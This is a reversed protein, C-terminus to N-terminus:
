VPLVFVESFFSPGSFSVEFGLSWIPFPKYKSHLHQLNKTCTKLMKPSLRPSPTFTKSKNPSRRAIQTCNQYRPHSCSCIQSSAPRACFRWMTCVADQTPDIALSALNILGKDIWSCQTPLTIIWFIDLCFVQGFSGSHAGQAPRQNYHSQTRTWQAKKIGCIFSFILAAARVIIKKAPVSGEVYM